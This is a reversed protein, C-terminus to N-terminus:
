SGMVCVGNEGQEYPPAKNGGQMKSELQSIVNFKMLLLDM